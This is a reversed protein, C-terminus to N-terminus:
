APAPLSRYAKLQGVMPQPDTVEPLWEVLRIHTADAADSFGGLLQGRDSAEPDAELRNIGERVPRADMRTALVESDVAEDRRNTEPSYRPFAATTDGTVLPAGATADM